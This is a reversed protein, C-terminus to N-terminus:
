AKCIRFIWKFETDSSEELLDFKLGKSSLEIEAYDAQVRIYAHATGNGRRMTRFVVTDGAVLGSFDRVLGAHLRLDRHKIM